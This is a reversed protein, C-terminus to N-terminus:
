AKREEVEPLLPLGTLVEANWVKAYDAAVLFNLPSPRRYTWARMIEVTKTEHVRDDIEHECADDSACFATSRLAELLADEAPGIVRNSLEATIDDFERDGWQEIIAILAKARRIRTITEREDSATDSVIEDLDRSPNAPPTLETQHTATHM